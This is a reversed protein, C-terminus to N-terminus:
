LDFELKGKRPDGKWLTPKLPRSLNQGVTTGGCIQTGSGDIDSHIDYWFKVQSPEASSKLELSHSRVPSKAGQFM